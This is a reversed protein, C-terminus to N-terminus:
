STIPKIAFVNYIAIQEAPIDTDTLVLDSVLLSSLTLLSTSTITKRTFLGKLTVSSTTTDYNSVVVPFKSAYENAPFVIIDDTTILSSYSNIPTLVNSAERNGVNISIKTKGLYLLSTSNVKTSLSTIDTTNKDIASLLTTSM